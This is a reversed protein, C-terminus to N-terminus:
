QVHLLHRLSRRPIKISILILSRNSLGLLDDLHYHSYFSGKAYSIFYIILDKKERNRVEAVPLRRVIAAGGSSIGGTRQSSKVNLLSDSAVSGPSMEGDNARQREVRVPSKKDSSSRQGPKRISNDFLGNVKTDSIWESTVPKQPRAKNSLAKNARLKAQRQAELIFPSTYKKAFVVKPKTPPAASAPFSRNLMPSSRRVDNNEDNHQRM